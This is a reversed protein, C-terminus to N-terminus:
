QKLTVQKTKCSSFMWATTANETTWNTGVYINALKSCGEFMSSFSKVQKTDFNSLDLETIGKCRYFMSTMDTVKSTDFNKININEIINCNAFMHRMSKVNETNFSSINISEIKNCSMFLNGMNNVKKTDWKSLDISKLNTCARFIQYLSTVKATNLTSVDVHELSECGYFLNTFNVSKSTDFNDFKISTLKTFGNFYFRTDPNAYITIPSYVTLKYTTNDNENYELYAMIDACEESKKVNWCEKYSSPVLNSKDTFIISTINPKYTAQWFAKNNNRAMMIADDSYKAYVMYDSLIPTSFNFETETYTPDDEKGGVKLYYWGLFKLNKPKSPEKVTKGTKVSKKEIKTDGDDFEVTFYESSKQIGLQEFWRGEKSSVNNEVYVLEGEQVILKKDYKSTTGLLENIAGSYESDNEIQKLKM